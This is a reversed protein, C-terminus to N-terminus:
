AHLLCLCEADRNEAPYAPLVAQVLILAASTIEQLLHM